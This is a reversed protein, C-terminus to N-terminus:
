LFSGEPDELDVAFALVAILGFLLSTGGTGMSAALVCNELPLLFRLSSSSPELAPSLFYFLLFKPRVHVRLPSEKCRLLSFLRLPFM